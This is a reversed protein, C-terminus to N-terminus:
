RRSFSLVAEPMFLSVWEKAATRDGPTGGHLVVQSRSKEVLRASGFTTIVPETKAALWQMIQNKMRGYHCPPYSM